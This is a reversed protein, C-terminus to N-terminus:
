GKPAHRETGNRDTRPVNSGWLASRRWSQTKYRRAKKSLVFIPLALIAPSVVDRLSSVDCYLWDRVM